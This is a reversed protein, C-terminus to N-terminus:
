PGHSWMNLIVNFLDRTVALIRMYISKPKIRIIWCSVLFSTCVKVNFHNLLFLKKDTSFFLSIITCYFKWLEETTFVLENQYFLECLSIRKGLRSKSTCLWCHFGWFKHFSKLTLLLFMLVIDIIFVVGWHTENLSEVFTKLRKIQM